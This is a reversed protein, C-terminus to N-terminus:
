GAFDVVATQKKMGKTIEISRGYRVVDGRLALFDDLTSLVELGRTGNKYHMPIVVPAGISDAVASATAADITYFGGVPILIADLGSLQSLQEDSLPHGLDGLHAIRVGDYEIINITSVGRQSGSTEDHFTTIGTVKFPCDRGSLTVASRFNHDFHDHSCLVADAELRLEPYGPVTGDEYPDIVLSYGGAEITFCSHGNCTLKM